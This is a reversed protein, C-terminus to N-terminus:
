NKYPLKLVKIESEVQEYEPDKHVLIANQQKALAAIWADATSLHYKVKFNGALIGQSETSDIRITPLLKMFRLREKAESEDHERLTIYYIEMFTMFSIFIISQGAEAEKLISEVIYFGAEEEIFAM